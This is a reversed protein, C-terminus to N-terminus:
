KDIIYVLAPRVSTTRRITTQTVKRSSDNQTLTHSRKEFPAGEVDDKRVFTYQRRRPSRCVAAGWVCYMCSLFFLRFLATRMADALTYMYM